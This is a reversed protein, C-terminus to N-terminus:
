RKSKEYKAIIEHAAALEAASLPRQPPMPPLDPAEPKGAAIWGQMFAGLDGALVGHVDETEIGTRHDKARKYPDLTYTRIGARDLAARIHQPVVIEVEVFSTHRRRQPDYPSIRCLSHVGVEGTLLEHATEDCIMVFWSGDEKFIGVPRGRKAGWREYASALMYAFDETEKGGAGPTVSITIEEQM